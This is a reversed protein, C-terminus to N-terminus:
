YKFFISTKEKLDEIVRYIESKSITKFDKNSHAADNGLGLYATFFKWQTKTIVGEKKLFNNLSQAENSQVFLNHKLILNKLLKEISIRVHVCANLIFNRKNEKMLEEANKLCDLVEVLLQNDSDNVIKVFNRKSDILLKIKEIFIDKVSEQLENNLIVEKLEGESILICDLDKNFVMDTKRCILVGIEDQELVFRKVFNTVDGSSIPVNICKFALSTIGYDKFITSRDRLIGRFDIGTILKQSLTQIKIDEFINLFYNQLSKLCLSKFQSFKKTGYGIRDFNEFYENIRIIHPSILGNKDLIEWVKEKEIISFINKKWNEVENFIKNKFVHDYDKIVWLFTAALERLKTSNLKNNFLDAIFVEKLIDEKETKFNINNTELINEIQRSNPYIMAKGNITEIFLLGEEQFFLLDEKLDDSYPGYYYKIFNYDLNKYNVYQLFYIFKQFNTMGNVCNYGRLINLVISKKLFEENITM